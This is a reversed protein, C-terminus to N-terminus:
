EPVPLRDAKPKSGKKVAVRKPFYRLIVVDGIASIWRYPVNVAKSGEVLLPNTNNVFLGQVKNDDVEVVLNSVTGLYVGQSTYVNLGILESAETQMRCGM